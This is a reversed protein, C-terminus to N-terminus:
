MQRLEDWAGEADRSLAIEREQAIALDSLQKMKVIEKQVELLLKRPNMDKNYKIIDEAKNRHAKRKIHRVWNPDDVLIGLIDDENLERHTSQVAEM